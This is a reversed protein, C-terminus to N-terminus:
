TDDVSRLKIGSLFVWVFVFWPLAVRSHSVELHFVPSKKFSELVPFVPLGLPAVGSILSIMEPNNM